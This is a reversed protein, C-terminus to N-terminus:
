SYECVGSVVINKGKKQYKREYYIRRYGVIVSDDIEYTSTYLPLTKSKKTLATKTADPLNLFYACINYNKNRGYNVATAPYYPTPTSLFTQGAEVAGM